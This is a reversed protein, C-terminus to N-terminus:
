SASKLSSLILLPKDQMHAEETLKLIGCHEGLLRAAKFGDNRAIMMKEYIFGV